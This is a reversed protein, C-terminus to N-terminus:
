GGFQDVGYLGNNTDPDAAILWVSLVRTGNSASAPLYTGRVDGTAATAPNTTVAATFTGTTVFATDWYTQVFQRGDVRFPLGFSDSTGVTINGVLAASIAIRTVTKLAKKTTVITTGNLTITEVTTVGYYDTGTITAVQTTDGANSSVLQLNRAVDLTAVGGTALAGNITLNAAGAVAQSAAVNNAALTAPTITYQTLAVTSAGFVGKNTGKGLANGVSLPSGVNTLAM